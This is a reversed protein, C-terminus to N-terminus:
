IAKTERLHLTPTIESMCHVEARHLRVFGVAGNCGFGELTRVCFYVSALESVVHVASRGQVFIFVM